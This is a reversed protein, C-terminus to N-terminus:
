RKKPQRGPVNRHHDERIGSTSIIIMVNGKPGFAFDFPNAPM